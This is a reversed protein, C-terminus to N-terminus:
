GATLCFGLAVTLKYHGQIIPSPRIEYSLAEVAINKRRWLPLVLQDLNVKALQTTSSATPNHPSAEQILSLSQSIKYQL